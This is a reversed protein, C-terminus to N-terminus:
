FICEDKISDLYLQYTRLDEVTKKFNFRELKDTNELCEKINSIDSTIKTNLLITYFSMESVSDVYYFRMADLITMYQLIDYISPDKKISKKLNIFFNEFVNVLSRFITVATVSEKTDKNLIIESLLLFQDSYKNLLYLNERVDFESVDELEERYEPFKNILPEAQAKIKKDANFYLINDMFCDLFDTLEARLTLVDDIKSDFSLESIDGYIDRLNEFYLKLNEINTDVAVEMQSMIEDPNNAILQLTSKATKFQKTKHNM